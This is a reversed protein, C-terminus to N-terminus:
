SRVLVRVRYGAAILRRAITQGIFGTAGTIAVTQTM